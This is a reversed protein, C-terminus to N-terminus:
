TPPEPCKPNGCGYPERIYRSTVTERHSPPWGCKPCYIDARDVANHLPLFRMGHEAAAQMAKHDRESALDAFVRVM